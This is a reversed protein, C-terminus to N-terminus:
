WILDQNKLEKDSIVRCLKIIHARTSPIINLTEVETVLEEGLVTLKLGFDSSPNEMVILRKEYALILKKRLEASVVWPSSLATSIKSIQLEKKVADFIFAMKKLKVLKSRGDLTYKIILLIVVLVFQDNEWSNTLVKVKNGQITLKENM